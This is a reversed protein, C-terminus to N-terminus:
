VREAAVENRQRALAGTTHHVSRVVADLLRRQQEFWEELRERHLELLRRAIVPDGPTLVARIEEPPM